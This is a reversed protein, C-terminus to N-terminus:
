MAARTVSGHELGEDAADGPADRASPVLLDLPIVVVLRALAAGAWGRARVRAVVKAMAAAAPMATAFM